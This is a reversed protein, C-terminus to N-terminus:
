LSDANNRMEFGRLEPTNGGKYQIMVNHSEGMGQPMILGKVKSVEMLYDPSGAYYETIVEDIGSSVLYTGQPCYGSTAINIDEGWAKLASFNVHATIDQDGPDQYPNENFAHKCYCLLTGGSRCEDYYERSTYGYDITIIFGTDLMSGANQLWTRVDLNIETRYGQSLNIAFRRLYDIIEPAPNMLEEVFGRTNHNVYVERITENQVILHVPLADMLENSLICGTIGSIDDPSRFWEPSHPPTDAGDATQKRILSDFVSQQKKKFHGYPEIIIYRLANSFAKIDPTQGAPRLLYEYVDACLHGMGAGMEVAYFESPRGLLAWMEMLQRAIMAGFLPHLHPSTYFDGRTGIVRGPNSYYGLGPYYLAMEMFERFRIPGHHKIHEIILKELSNM